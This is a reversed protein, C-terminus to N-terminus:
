NLNYKPSGHIIGIRGHIFYVAQLQARHVHIISTFVTSFSVPFTKTTILSEHLLIFSHSHVSTGWINISFKLHGYPRNWRVNNMSKNMSSLILETSFSYGRKFLVLLIGVVPGLVLILKCLIYIFTQSPSYWQTFPMTCYSISFGQLSTTWYQISESGTRDFQQGLLLRQHTRGIFTADALPCKSIVDFAM